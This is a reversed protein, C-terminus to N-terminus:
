DGCMTASHIRSEAAWTEAATLLMPQGSCCGREEAATQTSRASFDGLIATGWTSTSKSQQDSDRSRRKCRKLIPIVVAGADRRHGAGAGLNCRSPPRPPLSPAVWVRHGPEPGARGEELFASVNGVSTVHQFSGMAQEPPHQSARSADGADASLSEGRLRGSGIGTRYRSPAAATLGLRCPAPPPSASHARRTQSSMLMMIVASPIAGRTTCRPDWGSPSRKGVQRFRYSRGGKRLCNEQSM